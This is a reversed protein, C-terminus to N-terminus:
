QQYNEKKFFQDAKVRLGEAKKVEGDSVQKRVIETKPPSPPKDKPKEATLVHIPLRHTAKLVGQLLESGAFPPAPNDGVKSPNSNDSVPPLAFARASGSAPISPPTMSGGLRSFFNNSSSSRAAETGLVSEMELIGSAGRATRVAWTERPSPAVSTPRP